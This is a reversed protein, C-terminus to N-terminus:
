NRLTQWRSVISTLVKEYIKAEKGYDVVSFLTILKQNFLPDDDITLIIRHRITARYIYLTINDITLGEPLVFQPMKMLSPNHVGQQLTSILYNIKKSLREQVDRSYQQFENEFVETSDIQIDM